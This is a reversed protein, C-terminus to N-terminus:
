NQKEACLDMIAAVFSKMNAPKQFIQIKFKEPLNLGSPDGTVVIIKQAPNIYKIDFILGEGSKPAMKFDTIVLDYNQHDQYHEGASRADNFKDIRWTSPLLECLLDILEPEDDVMMIKM